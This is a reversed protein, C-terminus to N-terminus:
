VRKRRLLSLGVLASGMLAMTAPEPTAGVGLPAPQSSFSAAASAVFDQGTTPFSGNTGTANVAFAPTLSSFTWSADETNVPSFDLFDSSLVVGNLNTASQSAEYGAGTGGVTSTFKGGSNAPTANVNFTGSLLNKGAYIGTAVRYSFTGTFGQQTYSDGSPCFISGCGGSSTSVANIVFNALVAQGITFPTGSVLFDFNDQANASVTVTGNPNNSIHVQNASNFQQAQAFTVPAAGATTAFAAAFTAAFLLGKCSSPAPTLHTKMTTQEEPRIGPGILIGPPPFNPWLDLISLFSFGFINLVPCMEPLAYSFPTERAM